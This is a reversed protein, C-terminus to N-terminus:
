DDRTKIGSLTGGGLDEELVERRLSLDLGQVRALDIDSKCTKRDFRFPDDAFHGSALSEHGRDGFRM